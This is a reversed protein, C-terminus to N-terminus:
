EYVDQICHPLLDILSIFLSGPIEEMLMGPDLLWAMGSFM